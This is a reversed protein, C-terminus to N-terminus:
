PMVERDKWPTGRALITNALIVLKRACATVAKTHPKGNALLHRYFTNLDKNWHVCASFAANFATRRFRDRGGFIHREGQHSASDDNLPALGALKAAQERSLSGLEPMRILFGLATREAIGPITLLLDLRAALSAEARLRAELKRLAARCRKDLAKIDTEIQRRFPASTFRELTTKLWARREEIQEIYTLHEALDQMAESFGQRPTDIVQAFRAIVLADIADTKAWKLLAEAFRRVQRPQVEAAEIGAQALALMAKRHYISTAELAAREVGAERCRAVLAAIGRADNRVSFRVEEPLLLCVCLESKGTDIGAVKMSRDVMKKSGEKRIRVKLEPLWGPGIFLGTAIM